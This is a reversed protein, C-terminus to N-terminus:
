ASCSPLRSRSCRRSPAAPERRAHEAMGDVIPGLKGGFMGETFGRNSQVLRDTTTPIADRRTRARGAELHPYDGRQFRGLLARSGEESQAQNALGLLSVPLADQVAAKTGAPSEHLWSSVRGLMDGGFFGQAMDMVSEM